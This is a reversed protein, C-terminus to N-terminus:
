KRWCASVGYIMRITFFSEKKKATIVSCLNFVPLLLLDCESVLSFDHLNAIDILVSFYM